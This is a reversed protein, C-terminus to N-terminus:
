EADPEPANSCKARRAAARLAVIRRERIEPDAWTRKAAERTKERSEDTKKSARIAALRRETVQADQWALKTNASIKACTEASRPKCVRRKAAESMKARTEPSIVRNRLKEITEPSHKRGTMHRRSREAVEQRREDTWTAKLGDSVKQAYEPDRWLERSSTALRAKVDDSVKRGRAKASIKAAVSPETSPATDGGRSVNYGGPSITNFAAIFGIEARNLEEAGDFRGLIVVSPEGYKRWACHVPLNSGYSAYNRHACLRTKLRRTTQGVYKKGGAFTLLYVLM